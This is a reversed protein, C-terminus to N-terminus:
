PQTDPETAPESTMLVLKERAWDVWEPRTDVYVLQMLLERVKTDHEGRRIRARADNGLFQPNDPDMKLAEDYDDIAADFKGAAEMALGLNSRPEPQYPMLKSAYQFEWAALYINNEHLYVTGLNNHAPGFTIDADLAKELTIKAEDWKAHDIQDVADVTLKRARDTDQGPVRDLTEYHVSSSDDRHFCGSLTVIVCSM